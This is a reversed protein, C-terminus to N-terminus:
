GSATVEADGRLLRGTWVLWVPLLLAGGALLLADVLEFSQTAYAGATALLVLGVAHIYGSWSRDVRRPPKGTWALALMGAGLVASGALEFADNVADVTWNRLFAATLM